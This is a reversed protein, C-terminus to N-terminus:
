DVCIWAGVGIKPSWDEAVGRAEHPLFSMFEAALGVTFAGVGARLVKLRAVLAVWGRAAEKSPEVHAMYGQFPFQNFRGSNSSEFAPRESWSGAAQLRGFGGLAPRAGQGTGLAVPGLKLLSGVQLVRQLVRQLSKPASKPKAAFATGPFIDVYGTTRAGLGRLTGFAVRWLFESGSKIAWFYTVM